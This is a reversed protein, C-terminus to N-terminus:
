SIDHEEIEEEEETKVNTENVFMFANNLSLEHEDPGVNWKAFKVLDALQLIQQLNYYIEKNETKLYNFYALIEASTMEPAPVMFQGDIYERLVDTLQSHYEKHRNQQWLKEQRIKNLKEIALDYPPIKNELLEQVDVSKKKSLRIILYVIAALLILLGLYPASKKIFYWLSFRPKFVDKIDAIQIQTTDIVFPQIVKLSLEPSWVTDEGSVFPFPPILLLTDEFATVVYSQTIQLYGDKAKLTDNDARDVIELGPTIVESFLPTQVHQGPQQTFEFSLNTQQGIWIQISDMKANVTVQQGRLDIQFLALIFIFCIFGRRMMLYVYAM